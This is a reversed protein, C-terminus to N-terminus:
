ARHRRERALSRALPTARVKDAAAQEPLRTLQKAPERLPSPCQSLGRVGLGRRPADGVTARDDENEQYLWAIPRGIAVDAGADVPHRLIGSAPAEVEMAAKDTEIDFLPAGKEVKDGPAAHWAAIRGSTMDMDVKPMIVEVPM